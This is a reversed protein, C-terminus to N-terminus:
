QDRLRFTQTLNDSSHFVSEQEKSSDKPSGRTRTSLRYPQTWYFLRYEKYKKSMITINM